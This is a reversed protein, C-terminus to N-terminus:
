TELDPGRVGTGIVNWYLERGRRGGRRVGSNPHGARWRTPSSTPRCARSTTSTRTASGSAGPRQRGDDLYLDAPAGTPSSATVDTIELVRYHDPDGDIEQRTLLTLFLGHGPTTAFDFDIDLRVDITGDAQADAAVAYRVIERDGQDDDGHAASAPLVVTAILLAAM